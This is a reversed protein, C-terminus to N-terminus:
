AAVGRSRNRDSNMTHSVEYTVMSTGIGVSVSKLNSGAGNDGQFIVQIDRTAAAHAQFRVTYTTGNSFVLDAQRLFVHWQLTGGNAIDALFEEGVVSFSADGDSATGTLWGTLSNSFGGNGIQDIDTSVVGGTNTAAPRSVAYFRTDYKFEEWWTNLPPTAQVTAFETYGEALNTSIM